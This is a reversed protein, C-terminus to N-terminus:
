PFIYITGVLLVLRNSHLNTFNFSNKRFFKSSPKWVKLKDNIEDVCATLSDRQWDRLHALLFFPDQWQCWIICLSGTKDSLFSTNTPNPHM